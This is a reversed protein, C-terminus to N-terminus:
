ERHQLQQRCMAYIYMKKKFPGPDDRKNSPRGQITGSSGRKPANEEPSHMRSSQPSPLLPLSSDVTARHENLEFSSVTDNFSVALRVGIHGLLKGAFTCIPVTTAVVAAANGGSDFKLSAASALALSSVGVVHEDSVDVIQM